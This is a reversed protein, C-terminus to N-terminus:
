ARACSRCAPPTRARGTGGARSRAADLLDLGVQLVVVGLAEVDLDHRLHPGHPVRQLAHDAPLVGDGRGAVDQAVVQGVQERDQLQAGAGLHQGDHRQHGAAAHVLGAGAARRGLVHLLQDLLVVQAPIREALEERQRTLRSSRPMLVPLSCPWSGPWSARRRSRCAAPCCCPGTACSRRARCGRCGTRGRAHVPRLLEGRLGLVLLQGVVERRQGLRQGVVLVVITASSASTCPLGTSM